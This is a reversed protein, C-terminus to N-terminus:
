TYRFLVEKCQTPTHGDINTFRYSLNLNVTLIRFVPRERLIKFNYRNQIRSHFIDKKEHLTNNCIM